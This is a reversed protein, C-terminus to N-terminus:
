AMCEYLIQLILRQSNDKFSEKKTSTGKEYNM